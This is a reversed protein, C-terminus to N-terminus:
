IFTGSIFRPVPKDKMSELLTFCSNPCSLPDHFSMQDILPFPGFPSGHEGSKDGLWPETKTGPACELLGIDKM